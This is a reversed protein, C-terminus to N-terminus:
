NGNLQREVLVGQDNLSVGLYGLARVVVDDFASADIDLDVSGSSTYTIDRGNGDVTFAYVPKVPIRYYVLKYNGPDSPYIEVDSGIVRAIPKTTTPPIILSNKRDLWENEALIDGEYQDSGVISIVGIPKYFDAELAFKNSGSINCAQESIYRSLRQSKSPAKFLDTYFDILGRYLANDIEEPSKYAARYKRIQQRIVKHALEIM